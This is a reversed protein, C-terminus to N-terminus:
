QGLYAALNMIDQDSLARTMNQMVANDRRGERYARLAEAVDSAPMATLARYEAGRNLSQPNHCGVCGRDSFLRAGANADVPRSNVHGMQLAIAAAVSTVALYKTWIRLM